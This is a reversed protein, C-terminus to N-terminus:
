PQLAYLPKQQLANWASVQRMWILIVYPLLEAISNSSQPIDRFKLLYERVPRFFRYECCALGDEIVSVVKAISIPGKM